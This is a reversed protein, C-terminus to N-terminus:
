IEVVPNRLTAVGDIEIMVVDGVQLTFSLDPVLPTGTSLIAGDPFSQSRYLFRVLDPLRRHLLSTSSSGSWATEGDREIALHIELDYPDDVEWAPRMTAAVACSRDYIKAQPLYLPNEGEISRSSMDNCVTYAVIEGDANVVLALEPEPVNVPSDARIAIADGDTVVRWAPAKFFIEPRDADYVLEYVSAAASEEERASRSRQYTVGAAWVEMRGDALPLAEIADDIAAGADGCRREFEVLPLRLLESM